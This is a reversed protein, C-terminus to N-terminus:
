ARFWVMSSIIETRANRVAYVDVDARPYGDKDILTDNMGVNQSQLIAEQQGIANTLQDKLAMLKTAESRIEEVKTDVSVMEKHNRIFEWRGLGSDAIFYNPRRSKGMAQSKWIIVVLLYSLSLPVESCTEHDVGLEMM